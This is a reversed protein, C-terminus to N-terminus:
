DAVTRASAVRDAASVAALALFLLTAVGALVSTDLVLWLAGSALTAVAAAALGTRSAPSGAQLFLVLAAVLAAGWVPLWRATGGAASLGASASLGGAAPLLGATLLSATAVTLTPVYATRVTDIM